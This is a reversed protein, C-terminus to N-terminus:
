PILSLLFVAPLIPQWGNPQSLLISCCNGTAGEMSNAVVMFDQAATSGAGKERQPSAISDVAAVSLPAAESDVTLDMGAAVMSPQGAVM